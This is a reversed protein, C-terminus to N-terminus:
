LVKLEHIIHQSIHQAIEKKTSCRTERLNNQKQEFIRASHQDNNKIYKLDNIVLLSLSYKRLYKNAIDLYDKDNLSCELKFGVKIGSPPNCHGIVKKAKSLNITLHNSTSIIKGDFRETPTYDSVAASFICADIGQSMVIDTAELM